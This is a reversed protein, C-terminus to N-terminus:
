DLGLGRSAHLAGAGLAELKAFAVDRPMTPDDGFPSFGCNTTLALHEIGLGKSARQAIAAVAEPTEPRTNSVDIAGVYVRTKPGLVSGDLRDLDAERRGAFQLVLGDTRFDALAPWLDQYTVGKSHESRADSGFCVHVQTKERPLRGLLENNLDIVERVGDRGALQFFIPAETVDIQVHSAGARLLRKADAELYNLVDETFADKPYGPVDKQYALTLASASIVAAKLPREKAIAKAERFHGVSSERLTPKKVLLPLRRTHRDEFSITIGEGFRFYKEAGQVPYLAFGYRKWPEGDSIENLGDVTAQRQLNEKLAARIATELKRRNTETPKEQYRKSIDILGPPRPLSGVVTTPIPSERAM